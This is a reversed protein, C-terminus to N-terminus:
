AAGKIMAVFDAKAQAARNTNTAEDDKSSAMGVVFSVLAPQYNDSVPVVDDLALAVPAQAFVVDVSQGNASPPYLLFKKPSAQHPFWNAAAGSADSYWAPRFADLAAKDARLIAAGGTIRQVDLIAVLRAFSPAQEAGATCTHASTVAFLQPLVGVMADLADNVWGLLEADTNRYRTSVTDNLVYRADNIIQQPTM